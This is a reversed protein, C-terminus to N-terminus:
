QSQALLVLRWQAIQIKVQALGRGGRCRRLWLGAGTQNQTGARAFGGFYLFPLFFIVSKEWDFALCSCLYHVFQIM